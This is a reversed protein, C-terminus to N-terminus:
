KKEKDDSLKQEQRDWEKQKKRFEEIREDVLAIEADLKLMKENLKELYEGDSLNSMPSWKSKALRQMWNENEKKKEEVTKPEAGRLVPETNQRDIFNYLHQGGYGFLTFMIAGPIVNKPGRFLFGLSVGTFTGSLTSARVRDEITPNLDTRDVLPRDRTRNWWNLLGDHNLISTRAGWFTTGIAFCQLGSATAFIVPTQTRLTGAFAGIATGPIAACLGVLLAPRAVDIPRTIQGSESQVVM